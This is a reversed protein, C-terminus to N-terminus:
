TEQSQMAAGSKGAKKGEMFRVLPNQGAGNPAEVKEGEECLRDLYRRLQDSEQWAVGAVKAATGFADEENDPRRVRPDAGRDLLFGVVDWRGQAVAIGLATGGSWSRANVDAGYDFLLEMVAQWDDQIGKTQVYEGRDRLIREFPRSYKTKSGCELLKRIAVLSSKGMAVDLPLGSIRDMPVVARESWMRRRGDMMPAVNPDAGNELLLLTIAEDDLCHRLATGFNGANSPIQQNPHYGHKLFLEFLALSRNDCAAMVARASVSAGAEELLYRLVNVQNGMAALDVGDRVGIPRLAEKKEKVWEKVEDLAGDLCAVYFPRVEAPEYDRPRMVSFWASSKKVPAPLPPLGLNEFYSEIERALPACKANKREERRALIDDWIERDEQTLGKQSRRSNFAKLRADDDADVALPTETYEKITAPNYRRLPPSSRIIYGHRNRYPM